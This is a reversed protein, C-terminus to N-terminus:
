LIFLAFTIHFHTLNYFHKCLNLSNNLLRTSSPPQYHTHQWQNSVKVAVGFLSFPQCQSSFQLFSFFSFQCPWQKSTSEQVITAMWGPSSSGAGGTLNVVSASWARHDQAIESSVKMLDLRAASSERDSAPKWTQRSRPHGRRWNAQAAYSTTNPSTPERETPFDQLM